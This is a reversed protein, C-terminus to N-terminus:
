SIKIQNKIKEYTGQKIGEVQMLEEIERFSGNDERYSLIAEARKEGIGNLTMLEEKGAININVKGDNAGTIEMDTNLLEEKSPIYIQQGDKLLEAQNVQTEAAMETLGGAEKIAEYVRSGTKVGYVGPNNVQGCVHVYINEEDVNKLDIEQKADQEAVTVEDLVTIEQGQQKCGALLVIGLFLVYMAIKKGAKYM